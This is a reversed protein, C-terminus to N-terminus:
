YDRGLVGGRTDHLTMPNPRAAPGAGSRLRNAVAELADGPQNLAGHGDTFAMPTQARLHGGARGLPEAVYALHADWIIVKRDPFRVDYPATPAILSGPERPLARETWLAPRAVFGNAYRLSIREIPSPGDRDAGFDDLTPLDAALGPSVWAEHRAPWEALPVVIAPWLRAHDWHDTTAIVARGPWWRVALADPEPAYDSVGADPFDGPARFPYWRQARAYQDFLQAVARVNALARTQKASARAKGVAPVLLAVVVCVVGICVLLDGLSFGPARPRPVSMEGGRGM